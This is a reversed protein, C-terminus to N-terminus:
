VTIGVLIALFCGIIFPQLVQSDFIQAESNPSTFSYRNTPSSAPVNGEKRKWYRYKVHQELPLDDV